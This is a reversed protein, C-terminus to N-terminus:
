LEYRWIYQHEPIATKLLMSMAVPFHQQAHLIASNENSVVITGADGTRRPGEAPLVGFQKANNSYCVTSTRSIALREPVKMAWNLNRKSHASTLQDQSSTGSNMNVASFNESQDPVRSKRCIEPKRLRAAEIAAKLDGPSNTAERSNKVVPADIVPKDVKCFQASHGSGKCKQCSTKGNTTINQNSHSGSSERTKEETYEKPQLSGDLLVQNAVCPTREAVCSGSSSDEKPNAQNTKEECDSVGKAPSDGDFHLVQKKAEESISPFVM